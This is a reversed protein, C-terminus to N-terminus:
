FLGKLISDIRKATLLSHSHRGHVLKLMWTLTQQLVKM